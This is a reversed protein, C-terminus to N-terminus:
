QVLLKAVRLIDGAKGAVQGPDPVHHPPVGAPQIPSQGMSMISASNGKGPHVPRDGGASSAHAPHPISGSHQAFHLVIRAFITLM